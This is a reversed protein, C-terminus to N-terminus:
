TTSRRACRPSATRRCARARGGHRARVAHRRHHIGGRGEQRAAVARAADARGASRAQARAHVAGAAQGEEGRLWQPRTGILIRGPRPGATSRAASWRSTATTAAATAPSSRTTRASCTRSDAIAWQYTLHTKSFSGIVIDATKLDDLTKAPATHWLTLTQAIADYTGLWHFKRRRSACATDARAEGVLPLAHSLLIKTGDQPAPATSTTAPSSAAPARCTSSSSPRIAPSTAARSARRHHPRLSRLQRGPRDGDPDRHDQGQLFRRRERGGCAAGAVAAVAAIAAITFIRTQLM